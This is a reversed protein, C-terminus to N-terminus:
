FDKKNNIRDLFVAMPVTVMNAVNKLDKIEATTDGMVRYFSVKPFDKM